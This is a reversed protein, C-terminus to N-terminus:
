PLRKLRGVAAGDFLAEGDLAPDTQADDKTDVKLGSQRLLRQFEDLGNLQMATLKKGAEVGTLFKVSDKLRTYGPEDMQLLVDIQAGRTINVLSGEAPQFGERSLRIKEAKGPLMFKGPAFGALTGNVEVKVDTILLALSNTSRLMIRGDPRYRFDPVTVGERVECLITVEALNTKALDPPPISRMPPLVYAIRDGAEGLLGNVFEPTVTPKEPPAHFPKLIKVTDGALSGSGSLDLLLYSVRLAYSEGPDSSFKKPESGFSALSVKLVLDAGLSGALAKAASQSSLQKDLEKGGGLRNIVELVNSRTVVAFGKEKVRSSLLDTMVEVKDELEQGARNDVFIAVKPPTPDAALLRGGLRVQASLV